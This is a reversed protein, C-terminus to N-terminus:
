IEKSPEKMGKPQEMYVEEELNGHLFATKVDKPHIKWDLSAGIHVLVQTSETHSVLAYIETYDIGPKTFFRQDGCM